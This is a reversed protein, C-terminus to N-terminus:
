IHNYMTATAEKSRGNADDEAIDDENSARKALNAVLEGEIASLRWLYEQEKADVAAKSLQLLM